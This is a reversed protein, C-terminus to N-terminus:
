RLREGCYPCYLFDNGEPLLHGNPCKPESEAPLIATVFGFLSNELLGTVEADVTISQGKRLSDIVKPSAALAYLQYKGSRLIILTAQDAGGLRIRARDTSFAQGESTDETGDNALLGQYEWSFLAPQVDPDDGAGKTLDVPSLAWITGTFRLIAGEVNDRFEELLRRRTSAAAGRMSEELRELGQRADPPSQAAAPLAPVLALVLLAAPVIRMLAETPNAEM